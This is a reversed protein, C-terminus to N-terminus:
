CSEPADAQVYDDPKQAACSGSNERPCEPWFVPEGKGADPQVCDDAFLQSQGTATIPEEPALPLEFGTQDIGEGPADAGGLLM